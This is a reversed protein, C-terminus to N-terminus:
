LDQTLQLRNGDPDYVDVLRITGHIELVVGVEVGEERLRAAEAKVDAVDVALVAGTPEDSQVLALSAGDRGLRMWGGEADHYLQEFRLQRTYFDRARELDRVGYWVSM